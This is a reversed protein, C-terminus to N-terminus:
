QNKERRALPNEDGRGVHRARGLTAQQSVLDRVGVACGAASSPLPGVPSVLQKWRTM